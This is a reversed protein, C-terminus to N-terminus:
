FYLFYSPCPPVHRYDRSSLLSLCSFQRFGPHLPQPSGLDCWQVGTQTVVAFSRRLFFFFFFTIRSCLCIIPPLQWWKSLWLVTDRISPGALAFVQHMWLVPPVLKIPSSCAAFSAPWWLSHIFSHIINTHCSTGLTRAPNTMDGSTM